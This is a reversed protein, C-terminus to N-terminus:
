SQWQRNLLLSQQLHSNPPTHPMGFLMAKFSRIEDSLYQQLMRVKEPTYGVSVNVDAGLLLVLTDLQVPHAGCAAAGCAPM